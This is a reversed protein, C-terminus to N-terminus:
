LVTGDHGYMATCGTTCQEAIIISSDRFNRAQDEMSQEVPDVCHVPITHDITALTRKTNNCLTPWIPGGNFSTRKTLVLVRQSSPPPFLTLDLKSVIRDRALRLSSAREVNLTRLSLLSSHGALAYRLCFVQGAWEIDIM